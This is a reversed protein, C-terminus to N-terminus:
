PRRRGPPPRGSARRRASATPTRATRSWGRGRRATARAASAERRRVVGLMREDHNRAVYNDGYAYGDITRSNQYAHLAVIGVAAAGRLADLETYRPSRTGPAPKTVPVTSVLAVLARRAHRAAGM